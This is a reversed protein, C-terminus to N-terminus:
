SNNKPSFDSMKKIDKWDVQSKDIGILLWCGREDYGYWTAIIVDQETEIRVVKGLLDESRQTM